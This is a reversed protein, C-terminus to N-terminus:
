LMTTHEFTARLHELHFRTAEAAGKADRAAVADLIARHERDTRPVFERPAQLVLDRENILAYLPQTILDFLPNGMAASIASHFQRCRTLILDVDDDISFMAARMAALQEETRIAAVREAAPIELMARVEFLHGGELNGNAILMGLSSEITEALKDPDPEAVFSGGTVGRTTVILNQSSLLRLAERVTSRSLGSQACLQPETPLRDGPRLQGSTIQDRLGDALAQYAPLGAV